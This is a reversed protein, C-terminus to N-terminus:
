RVAGAVGYWWMQGAGCGCCHGGGDGGAAVVVMAMVVGVGVVVVVVAACSNGSLAALLAVAAPRVPMCSAWPMEEVVVLTLHVM